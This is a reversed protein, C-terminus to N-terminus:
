AGWLSRDWPAAPDDWRFVPASAVSGLTHAPKMQELLQRIKAAHADYSSSSVLVAFAFVYRADANQAIVGAVDNEQLTAEPALARVATLIRQPTGGLMARVKATLAARRAEQGAALDTPLGLRAEWEALLDDALTVWNNDVARALDAYVTALGTGDARLEAAAVTGDAPQIAPGIAHALERAFQDELADGSPLALPANPNPM